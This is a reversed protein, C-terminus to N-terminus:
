RCCKRRNGANTIGKIGRFRRIENGEVVSKLRRNMQTAKDGGIESDRAVIDGRDNMQIAKCWGQM